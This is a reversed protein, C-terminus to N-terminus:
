KMENCLLTLGQIALCLVLVQVEAKDGAEMSMRDGEIKLTVDACRLLQEALQFAQNDELLMEPLFSLSLPESSEKLRGM